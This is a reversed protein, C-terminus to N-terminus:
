WRGEDSDPDNDLARTMRGAVILASSVIITAPVLVILYIVLLTFLM